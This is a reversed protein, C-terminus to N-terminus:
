FKTCHETKLKNGYKQFWLNIKKQKIQQNLKVTYSKFNRKNM